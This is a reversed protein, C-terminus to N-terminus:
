RAATQCWVITAQDPQQDDDDADVVAIEWRIPPETDTSTFNESLRSPATSEIPTVPASANPNESQWEAFNVFRKDFVAADDNVGM